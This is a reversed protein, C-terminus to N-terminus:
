LPLLLHLHSPHRTEHFNIAWPKTAENLTLAVPSSIANHFILYHSFIIEEKKSLIKYNDVYVFQTILQLLKHRHFDKVIFSFIFYTINQILDRTQISQLSKHYNFYINKEIFLILSM